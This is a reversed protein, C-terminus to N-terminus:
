PRCPPPAQAKRRRRDPVQRPDFQLRAADDAGGDRGLQLDAERCGQHEDGQGHRGDAVARAEDSRISIDVGAVTRIAPLRDSTEVRARLSGQVAMAERPTLDWRHLRRVRM